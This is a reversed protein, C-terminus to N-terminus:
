SYYLQLSDKLDLYNWCGGLFYSVFDRSLSDVLSLHTNCIGVCILDCSVVMFTVHFLQSTVNRFHLYVNNTCTIEM